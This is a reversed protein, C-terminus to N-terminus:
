LGYRLTTAGAGPLPYAGDAKFKGPPEKRVLGGVAANVCLTPLWGQSLPHLMAAGDPRGHLRHLCSIIVTV